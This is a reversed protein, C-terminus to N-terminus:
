LHEGDNEKATEAVLLARVSILAGQHTRDCGAHDSQKNVLEAGYNIGDRPSNYLAATDHPEAVASAQQVPSGSAPPTPPTQAFLSGPAVTLVLTILLLLVPWSRRAFRCM